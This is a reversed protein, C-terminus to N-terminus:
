YHHDILQNKEGVIKRGGSKYFVPNGNSDIAPVSDVKDHYNMCIDTESLTNLYDTVASAFDARKNIILIKKDRNNNVIDLIVDLKGKYDSLLQGRNRIVEYTKSAREKLAIPNYLEDIKLNFEVNMDLQESWGNEQAIQNCIQMSSINLQLNGTNAQQM